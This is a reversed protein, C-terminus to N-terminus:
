NIMSVNEQEELKHKRGNFTAWGALNNLYNLRKGFPMTRFAKHSQVDHKIQTTAIDLYLIEDCEGL